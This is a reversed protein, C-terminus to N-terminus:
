AKAKAKTAKGKGKGKGKGKVKGIGKCKGIGKGKDSQRQRKAKAKTAKGKGQSPQKSYASSASNQINAVFSNNLVSLCGPSKDGHIWPVKEDSAPSRGDFEDSKAASIISTAAARM